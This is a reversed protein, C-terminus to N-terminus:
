RLPLHVQQSKEMGEAGVDVNVDIKKDVTHVVGAYTGAIPISLFYAHCMAQIKGQIKGDGLGDYTGDVTGTCDGSITGSVNGGSKPIFFTIHATHGQYSYQDTAVYADSIAGPTPTAVPPTVKVHSPFVVSDHPFILFSLILGTTSVIHGLLGSFNM